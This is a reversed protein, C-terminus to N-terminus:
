PVSPGVRDHDRNSEDARRVCRVGIDDRRFCPDQFGPEASLRCSSRCREAPSSWAGGRTIYKDGDTPGRPNREPSTAYYREDYIDHCWEAVNGHMDYLGWLNPSKQGVPHTTKASNAAYWAHDGLDDAADGFSYDTDTGARCAYEWEAETPLRYGNAEFNCEATDEDYCPQLGEARSRANCYLAAAAWSVQEMPRQPGKFHSPNGLVLKGYREQSMEYRDMWFADVWVKHVPQEDPEGRSSGMQFWGGPVLVMEAAPTGDDAGGALATLALLLLGAIPHPRTTMM